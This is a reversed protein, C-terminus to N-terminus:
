FNSLLLYKFDGIITAKWINLHLFAKLVKKVMKQMKASAFFLTWCDKLM